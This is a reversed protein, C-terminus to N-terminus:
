RGHRRGDAEGGSASTGPAVKCIPGPFSARRSPGRGARDGVAREPDAGAAARQREGLRVLGAAPQHRRVAQGLGGELDDRDPGGAVPHLVPREDFSPPLPSNVRSISSASAAPRSRCRRANSSPCASRQLRVPEAIVQRSGRSSRARRRRRREAVRREGGQRRAATTPVELRRRRACSSGGGARVERTTSNRPLTWVRSRLSSAPRPPPWREQWPPGAVPEPEVRAARDGSSGSSISGATACPAIPTSCRARRRGRRRAGRRRDVVAAVPMRRAASRANRAPSSPEHWVGIAPRASISPSRRRQAALDQAGVAGLAQEVGDFARHRVGGGEAGLARPDQARGRGAEEGGSSLAKDEKPHPPDSASM